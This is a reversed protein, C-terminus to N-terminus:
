IHRFFKLLLLPPFSVLFCIVYFDIWGLHSVLSAALPGLYSRPLQTLASLIAFQTTTYPTQALQMVFALLAVTGLGGFFQEITITLMMVELHPGVIALWLYSLTALGQLVGFYLLAQRLNLKQMWYGGLLSGLISAILGLTKNALGVETLSFHLERLLFASNLSLTLADGLKYCVVFILLILVEKASYRKVFDLAPNKLLSWLSAPVKPSFNRPEQPTFYLSIPGLLMLGSMVLYTLQWTFHEALILALGGAVVMGLRYGSVQIAAILGRTQPSAIDVLYGGLANDLSASTMATILAICALLIPESAPKLLGMAILCVSILIQSALMWSRKYGLREFGFRDILPAWLFKYVYPQSILSLAGISVLSAGAHTYWAALTTGTMQM